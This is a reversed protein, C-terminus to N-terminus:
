VDLPRSSDVVIRFCIWSRRSLRLVIKLFPGCHKKKDNWHKPDPDLSLNSSLFSSFCKQWKSRWLFNGAM